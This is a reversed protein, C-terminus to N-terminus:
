HINGVEALANIFAALIALLVATGAIAASVTGGHKRHRGIARM